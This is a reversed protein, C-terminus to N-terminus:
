SGSPRRPRPPAAGGRGRDRAPEGRGRAPLTQAHDRPNRGHQRAPRRPHLRAARHGAQAARAHGRVAPMGRAAPQVRFRGARAAGELQHHRVPGLPPEAARLPVDAVARRPAHRAGGQGHALHVSGHHRVEGRRVREGRAPRATRDGRPGPRHRLRGAGRAGHGSRPGGVLLPGGGPARRRPHHCGPRLARPGARDARQHDGEPLEGLPRGQPVEAGAAGGAQPGQLRRLLFAAPQRKQPLRRGQRRFRHGDPLRVGRQLRHARRHPEGPRSGNRDGRAAARVGGCPEAQGCGDLVGAQLHM